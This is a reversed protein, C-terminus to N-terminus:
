PCDRCCAMWPVSPPPAGTQSQIIRGLGSVAGTTLTHDFGFPNGIALCQQGVRVTASSGLTVPALLERPADIKLVALDKTRVAGVLTATFDRKVGASDLITVRAVQMCPAHPQAGKSLTPHRPRSAEAPVTATTRPLDLFDETQQTVCGSLLGFVIVRLPAAAWWPM